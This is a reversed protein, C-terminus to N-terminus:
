RLGLAFGFVLVGCVVFNAIQMWGWGSLSLASGAQVWADYGPRTAGEILLVAVFFVSGVVGGALMWQTIRDQGAQAGALPIRRMEAEKQCKQTRPRSMMSRNTARSRSRPDMHWNCPRM